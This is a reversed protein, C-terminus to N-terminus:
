GHFLALQNKESSSILEDSHVAQGNSLIHLVQVGRDEFFPAVLLNRHCKDPQGESCMLCINRNNMMDFVKNIGSLFYDKQGLLAYDIKDDNNVVSPDDPKGGLQDGLYYYAIGNKKCVQEIIHKNFQQAFKSYPKSRIDILTNINFRRLEEIFSNAELNSHGITYIKFPM